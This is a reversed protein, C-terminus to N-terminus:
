PKLTPAYNSGLKKDGFGLPWSRVNNTDCYLKTPAFGKPYYPGVPCLVVYTKSDFVKGIGIKNDMCISTPRIYMSHMPRRPIWERELSVM